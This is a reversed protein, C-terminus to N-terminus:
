FVRHTQLANTHTPMKIVVRRLKLPQQRYFCRTKEQRRLQVEILAGKTKGLVIAIQHHGKTVNGGVDLKVGDNDKVRLVGSFLNLDAVHSDLGFDLRQTAAAGVAAGLSLGQRLGDDFDYAFQAAPALGPM